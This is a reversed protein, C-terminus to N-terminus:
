PRHDGPSSAALFESSGLWAEDPYYAFLATGDKIQDIIETSIEPRLAPCGWSLGLRGHRRAFRESVYEAGHIVITRDFALDNVGPELGHLYLSYGHRGQYTRGTAFLGLSSQKSGNRNSFASAYNAGTGQGHAVLENELLATRELDLVWLRRETSPLAYDIITLVQPRKLLGRSEANARAILALRLVEPDLTPAADRLATFQLGLANPDAAAGGALAVACFVVLLCRAARPVGRNAL